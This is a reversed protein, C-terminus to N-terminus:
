VLSQRQDADVVTENAGVSPWQKPSTLGRAAKVSAEDPALALVAEATYAM